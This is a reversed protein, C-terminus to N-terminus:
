QTSTHFGWIGTWKVLNSLKVYGDMNPVQKYSENMYRALTIGAQVPAKHKGNTLTIHLPIDHGYRPSASHALRQFKLLEKNDEGFHTYCALANMDAACCMGYIYVDAPQGEKIGIPLISQALNYDYTVHLPPQGKKGGTELFFIGSYIIKNSM